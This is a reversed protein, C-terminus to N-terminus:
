GRLFRKMYSAKIIEFVGQREEETLVKDGIDGYKEYIKRDIEHRHARQQSYEIIKGVREQ